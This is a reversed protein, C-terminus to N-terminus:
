QFCYCNDSEPQTKQFTFLTASCSPRLFFHSYLCRLLFVHIAYYLLRFRLMRFLLNPGAVPVRLLLPLLLLLCRFLYVLLLPFFTSM